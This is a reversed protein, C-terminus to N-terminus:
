GPSPKSLLSAPIEIASSIAVYDRGLDALKGVIAGHLYACRGKSPPTGSRYVKATQRFADSFIRDIRQEIAAGTLLLKRDSQKLTTLELTRVAENALLRAAEWDTGSFDIAVPPEGKASNKDEVEVSRQAVSLDSRERLTGSDEPANVSAEQFEWGPPPPYKWNPHSTRQHKTFGTVYWYSVGESEFSGILETSILEEILPKIEMADAPFVEMKLRRYSAPHVGRDDCFNLLGIFLLRALPSCEVVQESTWFEPKVMRMRAM